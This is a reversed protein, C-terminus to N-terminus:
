SLLLDKTGNSNSEHCQTQATLLKGKFVENCKCLTHGTVFYIHLDGFPILTM